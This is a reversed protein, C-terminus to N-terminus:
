LNGSLPTGNATTVTINGVEHINTKVGTAAAFGFKITAPLNGNGNAVLDYQDIPREDADLFDGDNNVDIQVTLVGQASVDIQVKRRSADRTATDGPNDLSSLLQNGTLYRYSNAQSGRVAVAEPTFGPGGTRGQTAQSYNGFEDFGVGIYGGLLGTNSLASTASLRPAYGLSGGTGGAKDPSVAGDVLFCSLGDAGSGGYAYLDFRISLGETSAVPNSFLVFNSQNPQADTLRLLNDAVLSVAM